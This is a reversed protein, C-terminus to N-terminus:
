IEDPIDVGLWECAEQRVAFLGAQMGYALADDLGPEFTSIHLPPALYAIMLKTGGAAMHKEYHEEGYYAYLIKEVAAEHIEMERYDILVKTKGSTRCALFVSQLKDAAEQMDYSGTVLVELFSDNSIIKLDVAM